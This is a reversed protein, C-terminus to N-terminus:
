VGAGPPHARLWDAARAAFTRAPEFTLRAAAAEFPVWLRHFTEADHLADDYDSPEVRTEDILQMLFYTEDRVTLREHYVINRRCPAWLSWCGCTRM